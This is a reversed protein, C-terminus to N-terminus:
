SPEYGPDHDECWSVQVPQEDVTMSTCGCPRTVMMPAPQSEALPFPFSNEPYPVGGGSVDPYADDPWKQRLQQHSESMANDYWTLIAEPVIGTHFVCLLGALVPEPAFGFALAVLQLFGPEAVRVGRAVARERQGGGLAPWPRERGNICDLLKQGALGSFAASGAGGTLFSGAGGVGRALLTDLRHGTANPKGIGLVAGSIM